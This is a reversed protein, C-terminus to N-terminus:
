LDEPHVVRNRVDVLRQHLFAIAAPDALVGSLLMSEWTNRTGFKFDLNEMQRRIGDELDNPAIPGPPIAFYTEPHRRIKAWTTDLYPRIQTKLLVNDVHYRVSAIEPHTSSLLIVLEIRPGDYGRLPHPVIEAILLRERLVEDFYPHLVRAGSLAGVYNDQRKSNCICAPVLNKSFFSFEPFAARPLVHDLTGTALSGCMPCVDPSGRQRLDDIFHKLLEPPDEYHRKLAGSLDPQLAIATPMGAAQANGKARRYAVYGRLVKRLVAALGPYSALARNRALERLYRVDPVPPSPVLKM